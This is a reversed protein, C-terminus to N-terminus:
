RKKAKKGARKKAAAKKSTARTASTKKKGVAKGRAQAFTAAGLKAPTEGSAAAGKKGSMGLPFDKSIFPLVAQAVVGPKIITVHRNTEVGGLYTYGNTVRPWASVRFQYACSIPPVWEGAPVLVNTVGNWLHTPSMHSAYSDSVITASQNDGYFAALSYSQLHGEVDNATIRFRLGDTNDTMTEIACAPVPNGNHLINIIQVDAPNNDVMLSVTQAPSAVVTTGDNRFFQAQFQHIGPTEGISNWQLLLNQISYADAPNTLPYNNSADPGFPELIFTSGNWHYNTWGQRIPTFAGATGLRHLIKYKRANATWLSQMTVQNGLLNMAGGFATEIVHFYYAPDTTAFGDASINTTPILGVTGIVAGALGPPLTPNLALAITHLNSFNNFFNAPFDFTFSPTTSAVRLGFRVVKLSAPDSLDVGLESLAIRMEWVRHPAASHSTPGFGNHVQDTTAENLLGTWTGPGLYFQRRSLNPAGPAMGYNLDKHPSIAANADVDVTFWFYDGTGVDAGHDGVLDLAVYLFNADNKAMLFGAPIPITGAGGWEPITPVGNITIPNNAWTSFVIAM